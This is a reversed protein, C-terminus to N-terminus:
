QAIPDGSRTELPEALHPGFVSALVCVVCMCVFINYKDGDLHNHPKSWKNRVEALHSRIKMMYFRVRGSRTTSASLHTPVEEEHRSGM